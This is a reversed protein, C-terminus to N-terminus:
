AGYSQVEEEPYFSVSVGAKSFMDMAIENESEWRAAREPDSPRVSVVRKIGAQIIVGACRACPPLPFVYITCGTLDEKARLIANVEAHMIRPYKEARINLTNDDDVGPPYGNYGDKISDNVGRVVIAGCKTSPDKSWKSVFSAKDLFRLDWKEQRERLEKITSMDKEKLMRKIFDCEPTLVNQIIEEKSYKDYRVACQIGIEYSLVSIYLMNSLRTLDYVFSAEIFWLIDSYEKLLERVAEKIFIMDRIHIGRERAYVTLEKDEVPIM